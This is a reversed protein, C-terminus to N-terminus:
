LILNSGLGLNESISVGVFYLWCISRSNKPSGFLNIDQKNISKEDNNGIINAVGGAVASLIFMVPLSPKFWIARGTLVGYIAGLSSQRLMSLGLGLVAMIPTLNQLQHAFSRLKLWPDFFSHELIIPLFEVVPITSYLIICLNNGIFGFSCELLSLSAM